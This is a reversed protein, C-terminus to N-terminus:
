FPEEEVKTSSRSSTESLTLVISESDELIRQSILFYVDTPKLHGLYSVILKMRIDRTEYASNVNRLEDWSKKHTVVKLGNISHLDNFIAPSSVSEELVEM